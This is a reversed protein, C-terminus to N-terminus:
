FAYVLNVTTLTDLKKLPPVPPVEVAQAPPSTNYRADVGVSLALKTSMKVEVGIFNHLLTDDSGTELTFKDVAKTSATLQNSYDLGATFIADGSTENPPLADDNTELRRYGVGAQLALKVKDSDMVKYGGGATLSAQYDFGSFHDKTYTVGGFAFSRESFKYNTQWAADYRNGTSVSDTSAYLAALDLTNKWFESEEAMSLKFSISDTVTNGRAFVLGAEGKGKWIGDPKADDAHAAVAALLLVAAPISVNRM